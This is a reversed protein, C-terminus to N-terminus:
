SLPLMVLVEVELQTQIQLSGLQRDWKIKVNKKIKPNLSHKLIVM